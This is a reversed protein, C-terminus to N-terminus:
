QIAYRFKPVSCIHSVINTKFESIFLTYVNFTSFMICAIRQHFYHTYTQQVFVALTLLYSSVRILLTAVHVKPFVSSAYPTM